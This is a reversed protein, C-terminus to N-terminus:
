EEGEVEPLPVWGSLGPHTFHYFEGSEDMHVDVDNELHGISWGGLWRLLVSGGPKLDFMSRLPMSAGGLTVTPARPARFVATHTPAGATFTPWAPGSPDGCEISDDAQVDRSVLHEGIKQGKAGMMAEWRELAADVSTMAGTSAGCMECNVVHGRPGPFFPKYSLSMAGCSCRPANALRDFVSVPEPAVPRCEYTREEGRVELTVVVAAPAPADPWYACHIHLTKGGEGGSDGEDEEDLDDGDGKEDVEKRVQYASIRGILAQQAAWRARAEQPAAGLEKQWAERLASLNTTGGNPIHRVDVGIPKTPRDFIKLIESEMMDVAARVMRSAVGHMIRWARDAGDPTARGPGVADCTDCEVSWRHETGWFDDDCLVGRGGCACRTTVHITM